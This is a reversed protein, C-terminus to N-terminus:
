HQYSEFLVAFTEIDVRERISVAGKDTQRMDEYRFVRADKDLFSRM